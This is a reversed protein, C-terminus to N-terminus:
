KTFADLLTPQKGANLTIKVTKSSRCLKEALDFTKQHLFMPTELFLYFHDNNKSTSAKEYCKFLHAFFEDASYLHLDQADLTEPVQWLGEKFKTADLTFGCLRVVDLQKKQLISGLSQTLQKADDESLREINEDSLVDLSVSLCALTAMKNLQDIVSSVFAISHHNTSNVVSFHLDLNKIRGFKVISTMLSSLSNTKENASQPTDASNALSVDLRLSRKREEEEEEEEEEEDDDKKAKKVKKEEEKQSKSQEEKAKKEQDQQAKTAADFVEKLGRCDDVLQLSTALNMLNCFEHMFFVSSDFLPAKTNNDRDKVLVPDLIIASCFGYKGPDNNIMKIFKSVVSRDEHIAVFSVWRLALLHDINTELQENLKEDILHSRPYVSLELRIKEVQPYVYPAFEFSPDAAASACSVLLDYDLGLAPIRINNTKTDPHFLFVLNRLFDEDRSAPTNLLRLGRLDIQELLRFSQSVQLDVPMIVESRADFFTPRDKKKMLPYPTLLVNGHCNDHFDEEIATKTTQENILRNFPSRLSCLRALHDAAMQDHGLFALGDCIWNTASARMSVYPIQMELEKEDWNRHWLQTPQISNWAHRM